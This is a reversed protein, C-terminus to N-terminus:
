HDNTKKLEYLEINLQDITNNHKVVMDTLEKNAKEQEKIISLLSEIHGCAQGFGGPNKFSPIPFVWKKIEEVQKKQNNTM